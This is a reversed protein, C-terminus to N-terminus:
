EPKIEIANICAYNQVPIFTFDLKGSADPALHHFTETLARNAGGAEKLIDFNRLLTTGNFYVDFVRSGIGMVGPNEAGFYTESFYFTATYQSGLAVPISYDFYGFRQSTYLDSDPTNKVTVNHTALRGDRFYRDSLWVNGNHDTYNSDSAVIRVPLMKGPVGPVIEIANVLPYDTQKIFRLHLFGDPAPSVDTFVREDATEDSETDRLIDFQFLLSKGNLTINFVRSADGGGHIKDSGFEPEVFYLHLEYVGPKLPIDYAFEGQRWHEYIEYDLTRTIPQRPQSGEGGGTFYRDPGWRAGSRGLYTGQTDGALIRVSDSPASPIPAPAEAAAGEVMSLRSASPRKWWLALTALALISFGVGSVIASTSYRSEDKGSSSSPPPESAPSPLGAPTPIQGVEPNGDPKAAPAPQDRPVFRPVYHGPELVIQISHDAGENEYYEKLKKRLRHAEVRVIADQNQDFDATRGFVDTALTYEKIKDARGSIYEDCIYKLLKAQAPAKSFMGSSLVKEVEEREAPDLSM